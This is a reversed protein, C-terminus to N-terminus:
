RATLASIISRENCCKATSTEWLIQDSVALVYQEWKGFDPTNCATTSSGSPVMTQKSITTAVDAPVVFVLIPPTDRLEEPLEPWISAFGQAKIPHSKSLAMQFLVLVPKDTTASRAIAVSNLSRLNCHRPKFYGGIIDPNITQSEPQKRLLSGLESVQSFDKCSRHDLDITITTSGGLNTAKFTGGRQFIQHMRAEFIWGASTETEGKRLLFDYLRLADKPSIAFTAEAIWRGIEATAFGLSPRVFVYQYGKMKSPRTTYITPSCNVGYKTSEVVNPGMKVAKIIKRRLLIEYEAIRCQLKVEHNEWRYQDPPLFTDFLLRPIPGFRDFLTFLTGWKKQSLDKLARLQVNTYQNFL